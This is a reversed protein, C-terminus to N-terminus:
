PDKNAGRIEQITLMFKNFEEIKKDTTYNSKQLITCFLYILKDKVVIKDANPYKEYLNKVEKSTIEKYNGKIQGIKLITNASGEVDKVDVNSLITSPNLAVCDQAKLISPCIAYAIFIIIITFSRM